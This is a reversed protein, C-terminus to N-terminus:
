RFAKPTVGLLRKFHRNLHSQHAFGCLLAIKAIPLATGRLLEKARQVRREIVYRHPSLGTSEKFLRSFYYPSMHTADAIDALRLDKDLNDGIYDIAEELARGSLGGAYERAAKRATTRGLSSYNRILHIALASALSEAYLRGGLLGEAEVEEKLSLGIREIQPDRTGLLPLIEVRDPDVDVSKAVERLFDDELCLPLLDSETEGTFGWEWARGEPIIAVEGRHVPEKHIKGDLRQTLGLPQRNLHIIAHHKPLPPISIEDYGTFRAVEISAWGRGSSSLRRRPRSASPSGHSRGNSPSPTITVVERQRWLRRAVEIM